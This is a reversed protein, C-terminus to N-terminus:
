WSLFESIGNRPMLYIKPVAKREGKTISKLLITDTFIPFVKRM